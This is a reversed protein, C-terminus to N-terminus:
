MFCPASDFVIGAVRGNMRTFRPDQLMLLDLQEIAFAGGAQHV